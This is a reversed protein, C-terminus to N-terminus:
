LRAGIETLDGTIGSRGLVAGPSRKTSLDMKGERGGLDLPLCATEGASVHRTGRGSAGGQYACTPCALFPCFRSCPTM